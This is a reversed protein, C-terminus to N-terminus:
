DARRNWVPLNELQEKTMKSVYAGNEYTLANIPVIPESEGMGLFGGVELVYAVPQGKDDILVEEIEGIVEGDVNHVKLDDLSKMYNGAERLKDKDDVTSEMGEAWVAGSLMCAIMTMRLLM